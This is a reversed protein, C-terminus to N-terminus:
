NSKSVQLHDFKKKYNVGSKVVGKRVSKDATSNRATLTGKRVIVNRLSQRTAPPKKNKGTNFSEEDIDEM